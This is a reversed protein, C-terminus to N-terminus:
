LFYPLVCSYQRNPKTEITDINDTSLWQLITLYFVVGFSRLTKEKIILATSFELPFLLCSDFLCNQELVSIIIVLVM